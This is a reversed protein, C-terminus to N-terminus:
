KFVVRQTSIGLRQDIIIIVASEPRLVSGYWLLCKRRFLASMRLRNTEPEDYWASNRRRNQAVTIGMALSAAAWAFNAPLHSCAIPYKFGDGAACYGVGIAGKLKSEFQHTNKNQMFGRNSNLWEINQCKNWVSQQHPTVCRHNSTGIGQCYAKNM